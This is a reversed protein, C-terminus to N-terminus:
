DLAGGYHGLCSRCRSKPLGSMTLSRTLNDTNQHLDNLLKGHSVFLLIHAWKTSLSELEFVHDDVKSLYGGRARPRVRRGLPRRRRQKVGANTM